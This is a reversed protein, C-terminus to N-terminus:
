KIAPMASLQEMLAVIREFIEDVSGVGHIKCLKNQQAYHEAVPLTEDHYIRMRTAIKLEDQDDVRGAIKARAKIRRILEQEPVELFVVADIQMNYSALKEELVKAQIATRPFGDFLFGNSHKHTALQAVVIDIVLANPALKGKNIYEAVQQGLATKKSVHERLLEGPAIHTLRYRQILKQSQTGKGAGPPGFLAMNTMQQNTLKNNLYTCFFASASLGGTADVV